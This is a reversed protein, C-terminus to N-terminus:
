SYYLEERQPRPEEARTQTMPKFRAPEVMVEQRPELDEDEENYKHYDSYKNMISHDFQSSFQRSTDYEVSPHKKEIILYKSAPQQYVEVEPALFM